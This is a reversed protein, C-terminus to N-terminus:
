RLRNAIPASSVGHGLNVDLIAADIEEDLTEVIKAGAERLIAELGLKVIPSDEIVLLRKGALM